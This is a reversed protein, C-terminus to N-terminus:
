LDRLTQRVGKFVPDSFHEENDCHVVSYRM